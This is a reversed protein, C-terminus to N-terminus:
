PRRHVRVSKNFVLAHVCGAFSCGIGLSICDRSSQRYPLTVNSQQRQAACSMLTGPIEGSSFSATRQAQLDNRRPMM